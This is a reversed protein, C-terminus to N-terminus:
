IKILMDRPSMGSSCKTVAEYVIGQLNKLQDYYWEDESKDIDFIM